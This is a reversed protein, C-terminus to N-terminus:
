SPVASLPALRRLFDAQSRAGTKSLVRKIQGRVTERGVGRTAAIEDVSLGGLLSNAVAAEARTLDYLECLIAANINLPRESTTVVLIAESRSFIDQAQRRIPLIHLIFAARDELHPVVISRRDSLTDHHLQVLADQLQANARKDALAIRGMARAVVQGTLADFRQNTALVATGRGILAAPAGAAQFSDLSAQARQLRLKSALVTARALNPRIGDLIEIERRSVPGQDYKRELTFVINEGSAARVHTATGWGYGQPLLFEQYLATRSLEEDSFLDHDSVFGTGGHALLGAMRANREMWGEEMFRQFVPAFAECTVWNTHGEAHTFLLGGACGAIEALRAITGPWMEPVAAAEYLMGVADAFERADLM